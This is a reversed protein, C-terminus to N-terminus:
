PSSAGDGCGSGATTGVSGSEDVMTVGRLSLYSDVVVVVVVVVVM